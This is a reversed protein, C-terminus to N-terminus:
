AGCCASARCPHQPGRLITLLSRVVLCCPNRRSRVRNRDFFKAAAVFKRFKRDRVARLRVYQLGRVSPVTTPSRQSDHALQAGGPPMSKPAIERSKSRLIKRGRLIKSFKSRFDCAIERAAAHRREACNDSIESFRLCAACWWAAHIEARDGAIEFAFNQPRSFNEFIETSFRM